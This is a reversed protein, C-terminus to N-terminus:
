AFPYRVAFGAAVALSNGFAGAGDVVDVGAAVTSIEAWAEAAAADVDDRGAALGALAAGVGEIGAGLTLVVLSARLSLGILREGQQGLLSLM